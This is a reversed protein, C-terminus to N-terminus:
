SRARELTFSVRRRSVALGLAFGAALAAALRRRSGIGIFRTRDRTVEIVGLPRAGFGAGGGVGEAPPERHGTGFGFGFGIRAVPILTKGEAQVPEGFVTRV